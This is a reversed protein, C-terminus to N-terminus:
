HESEIRQDAALWPGLLVLWVLGIQYANETIATSPIKGNRVLTISAGIFGLWSFLYLRQFFRGGVIFGSVRCLPRSSFVWPLLGAMLGFSSFARRMMLVRIRLPIIRAISLPVQGAGFSESFKL